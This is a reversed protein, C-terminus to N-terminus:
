YQYWYTFDSYRMALWLWFQSPLTPIAGEIELRKLTDLFLTIPFTFCNVSKKPSPSNLIFLKQHILFAFNEDCYDCRFTSHNYVSIQSHFPSYSKPEDNTVSNNLQSPFYPVLGQDRLWILKDLMDKLSLTFLSNQYRFMIELIFKRM